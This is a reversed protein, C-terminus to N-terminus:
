IKENLKISNELYFRAPNDHEQRLLNTIHTSWPSRDVKAQEKRNLKLRLHEAFLSTAFSYNVETLERLKSSKLLLVDVIYHNIEKRDILKNLFLDIEQITITRLNSKAKLKTFVIEKELEENETIPLSDLLSLAQRYEEKRILWKAYLLQDLKSTDKLINNFFSDCNGYTNLCDNKKNFSKSSANPNQSCGILFGISFIFFLLSVNKLSM